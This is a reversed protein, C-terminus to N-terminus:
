SPCRHWILVVGDDDPGSGASPSEGKMERLCSLADEDKFAAWKERLFFEVPVGGGDEDVVAVVGFVDPEVLVVFREMGLLGVEDAALGFDVTCSEKTEAGFVEADDMVFAADRGCPREGISVELRVITARFSEEGCVAVEVVVEGAGVGGLGEVGFGVWERRKGVFRAHLRNVVVDFFEAVV